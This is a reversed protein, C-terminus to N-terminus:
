QNPQNSHVDGGSTKLYPPCPDPNCDQLESASGSCDAGGCAPAPNTCTRGRTQTGGECAESCASWASFETWIGPTEGCDQSAAPKVGAGSCYSDAVVTGDSRQCWVTQSQTCSICAGAWNDTNWSYTPVWPYCDKQNSYITPCSNGNSDKAISHVWMHYSGGSQFNFLSYTTGPYSDLYVVYGATAETMRVYYTLDVGPVSSPVKQWGMDQVGPLIPGDPACWTPEPPTAPTAPTTFTTPSGYLMSGYLRVQYTHSPDYTLSDFGTGNTSVYANPTRDVTQKWHEVGIATDTIVVYTAPNSTNTWSINIGSGSDGPTICSNVDVSPTAPPCTPTSCSITETRNGAVTWTGDTRQCENRAQTEPGCTRSKVGAQGCATVSCASWESWQRAPCLPISFAPGQARSIEYGDPYEPTPTAWYYGIPIYQKEPTIFLSGTNLPLNNPDANFQDPIGTGSSNISNKRWFTQPQTTWRDIDWYPYLFRLSLRTVPASPNETWILWGVPGTYDENICTLAPEKTFAPTGPPSGTPCANIKFTASAGNQGNYLRAYYITGNNLDTSGSYGQFPNTTGIYGNFGTPASTNSLPYVDKHYATTLFNSNPSIDVWTVPCDPTSTWSLTIQSGSYNGGGGICSTNYSIMPAPPAGCSATCAGINFITLNSTQGNYLRVYYTTNPNYTLTGLVGQYDGFGVGTTSIAANAGGTVAKHYYTTSGNPFIDVWTVPTNNNTWSITIGAGNYGNTICAPQTITPTPPPTIATATVLFGAQCTGPNGAGDTAKGTFTYTQGATLGTTNWSYNPPVALDTILPASVPGSLTKSNIGSADNAEVGVSVVTGAPGSTPSFTINCNPPIFDTSWSAQVPKFIFVSLLLIGLLLIKKPM